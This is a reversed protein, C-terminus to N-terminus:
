HSEHVTHHPRSRGQRIPHDSSGIIPHDPGFLYQRNDITSQFVRRVHMGCSPLPGEVRGCRAWFAPRTPGREPHCCRLKRKGRAPRRPGCDQSLIPRLDPPVRARNRRAVFVLRHDRARHNGPRRFDVSRTPGDRGRSLRSAGADRHRRHRDVHGRAPCLNIRRTLGWAIAIGILATLLFMYAGSLELGFLLPAGAAMSIVGPRLLMLLGAIGLYIGCLAFLVGIARVGSPLPPAASDSM